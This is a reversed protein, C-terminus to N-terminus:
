LNNPILKLETRNLVTTRDPISKGSILTGFGVVCREGITTGKLITVREGIWTDSGISVPATKPKESVDRKLYLKRWRERRQEIPEFEHTNTDWIRVHYSIAVYDGIYVKEDCRVESYENLNIYNGFRVQGGFRVWIRQMRLRNHSGLVVNSHNYLFLRCRMPMMGNQIVSYEGIKMSSDKCIIIAKTIEVNDSVELSSNDTIHIKSFRIRIDKGLKLSSSSDVYVYSGYFLYRWHIGKIHKVINRLSRMFKYKVRVILGNIHERENKQLSVFYASLLFVVFSVSLTIVIRYGAHINETITLCVGSTLLVPLAIRALVNRLYLAVKLGMYRQALCIRVCGALMEVFSYLIVVVYVSLGLKLAVYGLPLILLKVGGVYISSIRVLKCAQFGSNLGVTLQDFMIAVLILNCFVVTYDPVEKLWLGMITKMEFMCPIAFFALLLFSYKCATNALALMQQHNGAGEAKMIQPNISRLMTASFYNLQSSVQNAIAYAANVAPGRFINFLVALGQNKCVGTISGVINWGAFGGLDRLLGSDVHRFSVHRCEDFKRYCILFYYLFSLVTICGMCIGYILLRDASAYTLYIALMLKEVSEAISIIAIYVMKENANISASYPVSVFTFLVSLSAFHFVTRATEMRDAPIQLYTNLIYGGFLELIFVILIGAGIHLLLSHNFIKILLAPDNKGQYFSLYRQTSVTLAANLFALMSVVGMIVNFIGYDVAGLSALVLRVSYLSILITIGMKAYLISTNFIIRNSNKM